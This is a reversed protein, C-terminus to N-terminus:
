LSRAVGPHVAFRRRWPSPFTLGPCGPSGFFIVEGEIKGKGRLGGVLLDVGVHHPGHDLGYYLPVIARHKAIAASAGPLGVRDHAGVRGALLLVRDNIKRVEGGVGAHDGACHLLYEIGNLVPCFHVWVGPIQDGDGEQLKILPGQMVQQGRGLGLRADAHLSVGPVQLDSPQRPHVRPRRLVHQFGQLKTLPVLMEAGGRHTLVGRPGVRHEGDLDLM